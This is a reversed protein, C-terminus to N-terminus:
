DKPRYPPPTTGGHSPPLPTGVTPPPPLPTGVTPPPTSGTPPFPPYNNPSPDLPPPTMNEQDKQQMIQIRKSTSKYLYVFILVFCMNIVISLAPYIYESFALSDYIWHILIPVALICVRTLNSKDGFHRKSYFYGMACAMAFHAPVATVGRMIGTVVWNESELLYLINEAGAFGLGICAAYVIGDLYEDYYRSRRLFLWLMVLKAVEEPIAASFLSLSVADGVTNLSELGDYGLLLTLPTALLMAVFASGVGYFFALFLQKLPEPKASDKKYIWWGLLFVPLLATVLILIM